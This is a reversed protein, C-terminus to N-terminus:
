RDLGATGAGWAKSLKRLVTGKAEKSPMRHMGNYTAQSRHPIIGANYSHWPYTTEDFSPFKFALLFTHRPLKRLKTM